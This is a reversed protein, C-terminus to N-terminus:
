ECFQAPFHQAPCAVPWDSAIMPGIREEVTRPMERFGLLAHRNAIPEHGPAVITDANVLRLLRDIAHIMGRLSGHSSEDIVPYSGNIFLDGM